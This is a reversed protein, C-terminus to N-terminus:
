KRKVTIEKEEKKGEFEVVITLKTGEAPVITHFTIERDATRSEGKKLQGADLTEKPEANYGNYNQKNDLVMVKIKNQAFVIAEDGLNKVTVKITVAGVKGGPKDAQSIEVTKPAEISIKVDVDVRAIVCALMLALM